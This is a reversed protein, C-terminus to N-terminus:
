VHSSVVKLRHGLVLVGIVFFYAKVVVIVYEKAVLKFVLYLGFLVCSGTNHGCGFGFGYPSNLQSAFSLLPFPLQFHAGYVPFMMADKTQMQEAQPQM